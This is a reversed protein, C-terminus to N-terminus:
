SKMNTKNNLVIKSIFKKMLTTYVIRHKKVIISHYLIKQWEFVALVAEIWNNHSMINNTLITLNLNHSIHM